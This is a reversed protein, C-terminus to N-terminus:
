WRVEELEVLIDETLNKRAVHWDQLAEYYLETELDTAERRMKRAKDYGQMEEKHRQLLLSTFEEPTM